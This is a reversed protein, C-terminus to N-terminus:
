NAVLNDFQQYCSFLIASVIQCYQGTFTIGPITSNCKCVGCECEGRGNCPPGKRDFITDRCKIFPDYKEATTGNACQCHSGYYSGCCKCDGCVDQGHFNCEESDSVCEGDEEDEFEETVESTCPCSCIPEVEIILNEDFRNPKLLITENKCSKLTVELEFKVSTGLEVNLCGTGSKSKCNPNINIHCTKNNWQGNVNISTTIKRYQERM